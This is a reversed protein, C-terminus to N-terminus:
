PKEGAIKAADHKDLLDAMKAIIMKANHGDTGHGFQAAYLRDFAIEKRQREDFLALWTSTPGMGEEDM